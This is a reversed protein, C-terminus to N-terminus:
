SINKNTLKKYSIISSKILFQFVKKEDEKLLKKKLYFFIMFFFYRLISQRLGEGECFMQKPKFFIFLFSPIFFFFLNKSNACHFIKKKNLAKSINTTASPTKGFNNQIVKTVFDM